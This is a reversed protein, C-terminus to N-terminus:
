ANPPSLREISATVDGDGFTVDVNAVNNGAMVDREIRSWLARDAASSLMLRAAVPVAFGYNHVSRQHRVLATIARARQFCATDDNASQTLLAEIERADPWPSRHV